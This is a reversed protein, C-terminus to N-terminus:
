EVGLVNYPGVRVTVSSGPPFRLMVGNNLGDSKFIKAGFIKADGHSVRTKKSIRGFKERIRVFRNREYKRIGYDRQPVTSIHLFIRCVPESNRGFTPWLEGFFLNSIKVDVWFPPCNAGVRSM